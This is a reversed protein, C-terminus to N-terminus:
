IPVQCMRGARLYHEAFFARWNGELGLPTMLLADGQAVPFDDPVMCLPNGHDDYGSILVELWPIWPTKGGSLSELRSCPLSMASFAAGEEKMDLDVLLGDEVRRTGEVRTLLAATCNMASADLEVWLDLEPHAGKIEELKGATRPVDLCGTEPDREIGCGRGLCLVDCDPCVRLWEELHPLDNRGTVYFGKLRAGLTHARELIEPHPGITLPYLLKAISDISLLDFIIENITEGDYVAVPCKEGLVQM